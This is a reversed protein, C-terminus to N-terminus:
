SKRMQQQLRIDIFEGPRAIAARLTIRLIGDLLDQQTMTEGLGVQVDFAEHPVAGVLGGRRWVDALENQLRSKLALWTAATHPELAVAQAALCCSQRLMLATRRVNICRWHPHQGDLTRAGWVLVGEGEFSRIANIVKRENSPNLDDQDQASLPVAVSVVGALGVNAPARWVGRAGDALTYVGVMAASPPLLNLRCKVQAMLRCFTASLASLSQSVRAMQVGAQRRRDCAASSSDGAMWDDLTKSADEISQWQVRQEPSASAPPPAKSLGAEARLLDQLLAPNAIQAHGLASDPVVDTHLWPYYAGAFDLFRDGLQERFAAVCDPSDHLSQYGGWIDLIAFRNKMVGGCHQLAAQQVRSCCSQSLLVADPIVVLTPEQEQTLREIGDILSQADLRTAGYDGVSVVYCPGGGNLFFHCMSYYLLFRGGLAGEAQPLLYAQAAQEGPLTLEPAAVVFRAQPALGFHREFEALSGIRWPKNRLSQGEQDARETYGVFAPVATAVELGPLANVAVGFVGPTDGM